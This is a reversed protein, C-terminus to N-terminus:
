NAGGGGAHERGVARHDDGGPQAREIQIAEALRGGPEGAPLDVARDSDAAPRRERAVAAAGSDAREVANEGAAAIQHDASRGRLNEGAVAGEGARRRDVAAADEAHGAVRELRGAADGDVAAARKVGDKTGIRDPALRQ